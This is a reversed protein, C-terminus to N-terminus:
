DRKDKRLLAFIEESPIAGERLIKLNGGSTSVVTSPGRGFCNGKVFYDASSTITAIGPDDPSISPKEGSINASTGILSGGSAKILELCCEHNPIRVGLTNDSGRLTKSLISPQKVNCVITLGGPWFRKALLRALPDLEVVSEVQSLDSFLVPLPKGADRKKIKFCALVGEESCPSSGLGYVTDTPFVVTKGQAVHSGINAIELLEDCHVSRM